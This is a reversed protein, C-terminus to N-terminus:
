RYGIHIVVIIYVLELVIRVRARALSQPFVMEEKAAVSPSLICHTVIRYVVIHASVFDAYIDRGAYNRVSKCPTHM